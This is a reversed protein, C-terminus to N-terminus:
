FMFMLMGPILLQRILPVTILANLNINFCFHYICTTNVNIYALTEEETIDADADAAKVYRNEESVIVCM